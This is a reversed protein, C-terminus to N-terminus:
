IINLHTSIKKRKLTDPTKSWITPGIYSLVMQGTTAQRFPCKLKLFSGRTRINNEPATQFVEILYNSYQDNVYRFIISNICQNFREIVPLWNLTAFRKGSTHTM